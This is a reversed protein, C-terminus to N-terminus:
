SAAQILRCSGQCVGSRYDSFKVGRDYAATSPSLIEAILKPETKQLANDHDIASCTALVDPYFYANAAAVHLRMDSMFTRCPTGTLHQNLAMGLNVAVLNHRDEAGPMAFIKGDLYEHRDLEGSEWVLFVSASFVPAPATQTM